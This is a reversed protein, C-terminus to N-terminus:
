KTKTFDRKMEITTGGIPYEKTERFCTHWVLAMKAFQMDGEKVPIDRWTVKFSKTDGKYLLFADKRTRMNAFENGMATRLAVKVPDVIGVQNGTYTVNFKVETIDTRRVNGIHSVRFDGANFDNFAVPLQFDDPEEETGTAPIRHFSKLKLTFGDVRFNPGKIDVVCSGKDFPDIILPKETTSYVKGDVEISFDSVEIRIFDETNNNVEVKFKIYDKTAVGGKVTISVEGIQGSADQFYVKEPVKQAFSATLFLFLLAFSLQVTKM